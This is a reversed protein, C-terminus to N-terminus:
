SRRRRIEFRQLSLRRTELARLPPRCDTRYQREACSPRPRGPMAGETWAVTGGCLQHELERCRVRAAVERLAVYDSTADWPFHPSVTPTARVLHHITACDELKDFLHRPEGPGPFRAFRTGGTGVGWTPIAVGFAMVRRTLADGDIGRRGLARALAAYDEDLAMKRAANEAQLLDASISFDTM